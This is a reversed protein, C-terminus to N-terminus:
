SFANLIEQIATKIKEAPENLLSQILVEKDRTSISSFHGLVQKLYRERQHIDIPINELISQIFQVTNQPEAEMITRSKNTRDGIIKTLEFKQLREFYDRNIMEDRDPFKESTIQKLLLFVESEIKKIHNEINELDFSDTM